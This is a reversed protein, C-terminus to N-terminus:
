IEEFFEKSILKYSFRTCYMKEKHSILTKKQVCVFLHLLLVKMWGIGIVTGDKKM